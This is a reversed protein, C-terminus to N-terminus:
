GFALAFALPLALALAPLLLVLFHLSLRDLLNQPTRHKPDVGQQQFFHGLTAHADGDHQM